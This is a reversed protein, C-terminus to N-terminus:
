SQLQQKDNTNGYRLKEREKQLRMLYIHEKIYKKLFWTCYNNLMRRKLIEEEM